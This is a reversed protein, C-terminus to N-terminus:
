WIPARDPPTGKTVASPEMEMRRRSDRIPSPAEARGELVPGELSTGPNYACHVLDLCIPEDEDFKAIMKAITPM